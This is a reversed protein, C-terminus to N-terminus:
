KRGKKRKSKPKQSQSQMEVMIDAISSLHDDPCHGIITAKFAAWSVCKVPIQQCLHHNLMSLRGDFYRELDNLCASVGAKDGWRNVCLNIVKDYKDLDDGRCNERLAELQASKDITVAYMDSGDAVATRGAAHSSDSNSGDLQDVRDPVVAELQALRSQIGQMSEVMSSTADDIAESRSQALAFDNCLSVTADSM